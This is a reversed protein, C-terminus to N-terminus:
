NQEFQSQYRRSKRGEEERSQKYINKGERKLETQKEEVKEM